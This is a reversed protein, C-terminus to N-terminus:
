LRAGLTAAIRLIDAFVGAATVEPGAGPGQVILPNNRYRTTKFEVINDTLAIHAFPHSRDLATLAVKASGDAGLRATYRLVKGEAQAQAYRAAMQGDSASLGAMFADVDGGHLDAPVLSEIEVQELTLPLGLERALITLKRGVDVGSLDDRPDPETYGLARAQAVLASFPQSGDFCNFLWALTGSFIGEISLVQDGTDLLDRLTSIVPLGAGVTAEYRFRAGGQTSRARVAQYRSLDGAGLRKNPTVVHIGASLWDAYQAAVADSASCDVILAHPIHDDRVLAAFETLALSSAAADLQQPWSELRLGRKDHAVQRSNAVAVVRLDLHAQHKLRDAAERLQELLARGVQGVGILGVAITQASLYFGGHVAQVARAADRGDIAVSINRESSGQAIARINIGARGLASFLRAATGPQGAMGDGVVALVSVDPQVTIAAITRDELERRFATLLAAQAADAQNQHIVCCISHESSGQSIMVVSAGAGKLAAFVREATGHVGIMGAGEITLLAQQDITSIGKVPPQLCREASIRTGPHSPNFTNRIVLPLAREAAPTMTQPHIVKAGFYALEFAEEYSLATLVQAEPVIRPDGSLVGDVDTWIQVESANFLAGFISASWDSGNRGLTTIRGSGDRAIFGTVVIRSPVSGDLWATLRESSAAWDIRPGLEGHSIRLVDRADLFTAPAGMAHFCATLLEASLVEGLGSVVDVASTPADELLSLAHLVDRLDAFRTNLRELTAAANDGLLGQSADIHRQKLAAFRADLDPHRQAALTALDILQDTTGKLASVVIVQTLDDRAVMLEAVARIREANALSTGGFKHTVIAM